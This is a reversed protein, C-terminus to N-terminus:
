RGRWTRYAAALREGRAELDFRRVVWNGLVTGCVSGIAWCGVYFAVM